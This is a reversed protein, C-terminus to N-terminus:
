REAGTLREEDHYATSRDACGCLVGAAEELIGLPVCGRHWKISSKNLREQTSAGSGDQQEELLLGSAETWKQSALLKWVCCM